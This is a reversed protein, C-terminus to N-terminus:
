RSCFGFFYGSDNATEIAVYAQRKRWWKGRRIGAEYEEFTLLLLAKPVPVVVYGPPPAAPPTM